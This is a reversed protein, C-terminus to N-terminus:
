EKMRGHVCNCQTSDPPQGKWRKASWSHQSTSLGTHVTRWPAAAPSRSSRLSCADAAPTSAGRASALLPQAHAPFVPAYHFLGSCHIHRSLTQMQRCTACLRQHVWTGQVLSAPPPLPRDGLVYGKCQQEAAQLWGVQKTIRDACPRALQICQRWRLHLSGGNGISCPKLVDDRVQQTHQSQVAKCVIDRVLHPPGQCPAFGVSQSAWCNYAACM